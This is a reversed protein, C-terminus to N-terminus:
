PIATAAPRELIGAHMLLAWVHTVFEGGEALLEIHGAVNDSPAIYVLMEAWFDALLDWRIVQDEMDELLKGLRVGKSLLQASTAETATADAVNSPVEDVVNPLGRLKEYRERPSVLGQLTEKAEKELEDLTCESEIPRGPLLKPACAVLYAVYKSLSTAVGRNPHVDNENPGAITESIECYSTAVHWVLISHTLTFGDDTQCAWCLRDHMDHRMLESAGNSLNGNISNRIVRAVAKKVEMTLEVPNGTKRSQFRQKLRDWSSSSFSDLVSYQGITNRWYHLWRHPRGLLLLVKKIRENKQWSPNTAYTCVLSVKSWDSAFYSCIQLLEFLSLAVLAAVTVVVDRRSTEVLLDDLISVQKNSVTIAWTGVAICVVTIAFSTACYFKKNGYMISAYKTFFFDYIFALEAEIVQFAREYEQETQLLGDLVLDRSKDLKSEPCSYGFYRRVVLHFLAFSLCLDKLRRIRPSNSSSLAGINNSWIQELTIPSDGTANHILVPYRYGQMTRPNYCASPQHERKMYDALWKIGNESSPKSALSAAEWQGNVRGALAMTFILTTITGIRPLVDMAADDVSALAMGMYFMFLLIDCFIKMTSNEGFKQVSIANTGGFSLMALFMTWVLFLENKILQQQMLGLTYSLLPFSVLLVGEVGYRIIISKCHRRMPAGIALVIMFVAAVMVFGEVRDAKNRPELNSNIWSETYNRCAQEEM